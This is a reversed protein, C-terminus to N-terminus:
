KNVKKEPICTSSDVRTQIHARAEECQQETAFEIKTSVPIGYFGSVSIALVWVIISM